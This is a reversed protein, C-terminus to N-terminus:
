PLVECEVYVLHWDRLMRSMSSLHFLLNNTKHVIKDEGYGKQQNKSHALRSVQELDLLAALNLFVAHVIMM